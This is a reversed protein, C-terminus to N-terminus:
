KVKPENTKVTKNFRKRIYDAKVQSMANKQSYPDDRNNGAIAKAKDIWEKEIRDSDKTVKSVDIADDTQTSSTSTIPQAPLALDSAVQSSIQIAQKQPKNEPTAVSSKEKISTQEGGTEPLQPLEFKPLSEGSNPNM